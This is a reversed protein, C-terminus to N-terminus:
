RLDNDSPLQHVKAQSASIQFNNWSKSHPLIYIQHISAQNFLTWMTQLLTVSHGKIRTIITYFINLNLDPAYRSSSEVRKMLTM